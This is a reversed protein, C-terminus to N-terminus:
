RKSIFPLAFILMVVNELNRIIDCHWANVIPTPPFHKHNKVKWWHVYMSCTRIRIVNNSCNITGINWQISWMKDCKKWISKMQKKLSKTSSKCNWHKCVVIQTINNKWLHFVGDIELFSVDKIKLEIHVLLNLNFRRNWGLVRM